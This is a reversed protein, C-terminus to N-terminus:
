RYELATPPPQFCPAMADFTLESLQKLLCVLSRVVSKKIDVLLEDYVDGLCAGLLHELIM